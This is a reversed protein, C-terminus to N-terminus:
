EDASSEYVEYAKEKRWLQAGFRTIVSVEIDENM